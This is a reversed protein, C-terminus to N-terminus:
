GLINVLLYLFMLFAVIFYCIVLATGLTERKGRLKVKDYRRTSVLLEQHKLVYIGSGTFFIMLLFAVVDEGTIRINRKNIDRVEDKKNYESLLASVLKQGSIYNEDYERMIENRIKDFDRIWNENEAIIKEIDIGNGFSMGNNRITVNYYFGNPYSIYIDDGSISYRYVYEGDTITNNNRDIIIRRDDAWTKVISTDKLSENETNYKVTDKGSDKDKDYIIFCVIIMIVIIAIDMLISFVKRAKENKLLDNM